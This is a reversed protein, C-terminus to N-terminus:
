LLYPIAFARIVSICEQMKFVEHKGTVIHHIQRKMEWDVSKDKVATVATHTPRSNKNQHKHCIGCWSWCRSSLWVARQREVACQEVAPQREGDLLHTFAQEHRQDIPKPPHLNNRVRAKQLCRRAGEEGLHSCAVSAQSYYYTQSDSGGPCAQRYRCWWQTSWARAM